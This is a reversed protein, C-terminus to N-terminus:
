TLAAASAVIYSGFRKQATSANQDVLTKFNLALMAPTGRKYVVEPEGV